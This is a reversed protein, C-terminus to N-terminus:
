LDEPPKLQDNGTGTDSECSPCYKGSGSFPKGCRICVKKPAAKLNRGCHLCFSANPSNETGCEPCITYAPEASSPVTDVLPRGCKCCFKAGPANEAGCMNCRMRTDPEPRPNGCKTCFAERNKQGCSCTWDAQISLPKGCFICFATDPKNKAGCHACIKAGELKKSNLRSVLIAAVACIFSIYLAPSVHFLNLNLIGMRKLVTSYEDWFQPQLWANLKGVVVLMVSLVLANAATYVATWATHGKKLSLISALALLLLLILVCWILVSVIGFNSGYKSLSTSAYDDLSAATRLLKGVNGCISAAEILSVKGDLIKCVSIATKRAIFYTNTDTSGMLDDFDDILKAQVEQVSVRAVKNLVDDITLKGNATNLSINVVPLLLMIFSVVVLLIAVISKASVNTKRKM